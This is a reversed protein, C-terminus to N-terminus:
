DKITDWDDHGMLITLPLLRHMGDIAIHSQESKYDQGQIHQQHYHTTDVLVICFVEGKFM